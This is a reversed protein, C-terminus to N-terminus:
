AAARWLSDDIGAAAAMRAFFRAYATVEFPNDLHFAFRLAPDRSHRHHMLNTVIEGSAGTRCAPHPLRSYREYGAFPDGSWTLHKDRFMHRVMDPIAIGSRFTGYAYPSAASGLRAAAARRRAAHGGLLDALAGTARPEPTYKSVEGPREPVFGSFHFFGLPRGDVCWGGEPATTVARRDLNWYAVNFGTDRLVHAHEALGPLLDMYKQDVFLGRDQENFCGHRLMRAWWRLVPETEAAQAVALFGLNYVGTQMVHQERRPAAETPPACFHPTVVFSAGGALLDLLDDLRRFIEIDPDFYVVNRHGRELLRLMLFPKIATNFETVDYGFAFGDFDTIGLAEAPLVEVGDPYRLGPDPRDALGLVLTAEPHHTRASAFFVEAQALYNNSCISVFATRAVM